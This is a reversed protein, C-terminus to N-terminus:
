SALGTKKLDSKFIHILFYFAYSIAFFSEYSGDDRTSVRLVEM